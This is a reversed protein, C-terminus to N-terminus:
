SDAVEIYLFMIGAKTRQSLQCKLYSYMDTNTDKHLEDTRHRECRFKRVKKSKSPLKKFSAGKNCIQVNKPSKYENLFGCIFVSKM